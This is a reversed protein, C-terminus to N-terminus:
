KIKTKLSGLKEAEFIEVFDIIKLKRLDILFDKPIKIKGIWVSKQIMEFGMGKLTERLWNRKRSEKEPVDFSIITAKDNKKKEYEITPLSTSLKQNLNELKKRGKTTLTLIKEKQNNMKEQILGDTKLQYLLNYFKQKERLELNRQTRRSEINRLEKSMKGYSAGYGASLLASIVDATALTAEGIVELIKTTIKGRM